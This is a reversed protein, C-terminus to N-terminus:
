KLYRERENQTNVDQVISEDLIEIYSIEDHFKRLVDRLNDSVPANIIKEVIYRSLIIPHGAKKEYSPLIVKRAFNHAEHALKEYVVESIHPQDVLHLMVYDDKQMEPFLEKLGIQVSSFMGKIFDKNNIFDIKKLIPKGNYIEKVNDELVYGNFGTVILIEDCVAALKNIIHEIFPKKNYLVLPKFDGMRSSYGAALILGFIKHIM